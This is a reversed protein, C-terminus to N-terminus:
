TRRPASSLTPLGSGILAVSRELDATASVTNHHPLPKM